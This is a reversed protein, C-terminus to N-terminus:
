LFLIYLLSAVMTGYIANMCQVIIVKEGKNDTTVFPGYFDTDIELLLEVLVGRVNIVTMENENEFRRQIFANPIDIVAVDRKEEIDIICYLIM